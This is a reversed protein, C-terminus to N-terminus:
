FTLREDLLRTFVERDDIVLRDGDRPCSMLCDEFGKEARQALFLLRVALFDTMYSVREM